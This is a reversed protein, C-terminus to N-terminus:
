LKIKMRESLDAKMKKIADTTEYLIFVQKVDLDKLLILRARTVKIADQMNKYKMQIVGQM